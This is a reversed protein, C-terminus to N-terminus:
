RAIMRNIADPRLFRGERGDYDRAAAPWAWYGPQAVNVPTALAPDIFFVKKAGQRVIKMISKVFKAMVADAADYGASISGCQLGLPDFAPVGGRCFQVLGRGTRGALFGTGSPHPIVMKETYDSLPLLHESIMIVVSGTCCAFSDQVEPIRSRSFGATGFFRVDPHATKIRASLDQEDSPELFVQLQPLKSSM